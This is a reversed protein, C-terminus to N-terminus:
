SVDIKLRLSRTVTRSRAGLKEAFRVTVRLGHQGKRLGRLPLSVTDSRKPYIARHGTLSLTVTTLTLKPSRRSLKTTAFSVPLKASPKLPDAASETTVAFRQNGDTLSKTQAAPTVEVAGIDTHDSQRTSGGIGLRPAGRQDTTFRIGPVAKRFLEANGRGLAPSGSEPVMTETAGGNAALAHLRPRKPRSRSGVVDTANLKLAGFGVETGAGILSFSATLSSDRKSTEFLYLDPSSNRASATNGALITDDLNITGGDIAIGGSRGHPATNAAITSGVITETPAADTGETGLYLAGHGGSASNEAITSNEVFAHLQHSKLTGRLGLGGCRISAVNGTIASNTIVVSGGGRLALGGAYKAHNDSVTSTEVKLGGTGEVYIAGGGYRATNGTLISDEVTLTSKSFIAGGREVGSNGTMVSGDLVLPSLAYVGPDGGTITVGSIATTKTGADVEFAPTTAVADQITLTDAGPGDVSIPKTIEPLRSSLEIAGSLGSAFTITGGNATTDLYAIADALNPASGDVVSSASPSSTDGTTAVTVTPAVGAAGAASVTGSVVVTALAAGGGVTLVSAAARRDHRTARMRPQRRPM